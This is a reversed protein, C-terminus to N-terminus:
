PIPGKKHKRHHKMAKFVKRYLFERSEPGEKGDVVAWGMDMDALKENMEDLTTTFDASWEWDEIGSPFKNLLIKLEDEDLVKAKRYLFERIEPGETGDVVAWGMDMDALKENMEDLTTTFDASWVWDEIGSPFKNLLTRLEDVDLVKAEQPNGNWPDLIKNEDMFRSLEEMFGDQQENGTREGNRYSKAMAQISPWKNNRLYKWDNDKVWKHQSKVCEALVHRWVLETTLPRWNEPIAGGRKFLYGEYHKILQVLQVIEDQEERDAPFQSM